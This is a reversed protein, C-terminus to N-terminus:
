MAYTIKPRMGLTFNNKQFLEFLSLMLNDDVTIVVTHPETIRPTEGLDESM